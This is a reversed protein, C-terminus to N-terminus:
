RAAGGDRSHAARWACASWRSGLLDVCCLDPPSGPPPPCPQTCDPAPTPKPPPLPRLCAVLALSLVIVWGVIVASVAEV